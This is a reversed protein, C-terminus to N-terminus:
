GLPNGAAIEVAEAVSLSRVGREPDHIEIATSEGRGAPFFRLQRGSERLREEVGGALAIQELVDPPPGGRFAEISGSPGQIRLIPSSM